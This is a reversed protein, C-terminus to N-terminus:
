FPMRPRQRWEAIRIEAVRLLEDIDPPKRVVIVDDKLKSPLNRAEEGTLLVIPMGVLHTTSIAAAVGDGNLKPMWMDLLLLDPPVSDGLVKELADVGDEATRVVYGHERLIMALVERIDEDDDAVVIHESRPRQADIAEHRKTDPEADDGGGSM